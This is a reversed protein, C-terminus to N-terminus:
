QKKEGVGVGGSARKNPDGEMAQKDKKFKDEQEENRFKNDGDKHVVDTGDYGANTGSSWNSLLLDNQDLQKGSEKWDRVQEAQFEANM